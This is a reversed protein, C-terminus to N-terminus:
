NRNSAASGFSSIVVCLIAASQLHTLHEALFFIGMLAALAPELSMLIGFTRPPLNRLSIMELSYPLASGLVAVLLITPLEELNLLRPGDILIGLPFVILAAAVMGMSAVVGGRYESSVRKGFIIYLAWFGGAILALAIGLPDLATAATGDEPILLLIGVGAVLAWVYDLKTKSTFIAVALPGVFELAVGIGLPIRKLAYYFSFNMLGLAAGYYWVNKTFRMRWPKFWAAMLASAFLLRLASTGATGMIPFLQKAQSASFQISLMAILLLLISRIM